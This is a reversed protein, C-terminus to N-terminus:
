ILDVNVNLPYFVCVHRWRYRHNRHISLCNAPMQKTCQTARPQRAFPQTTSPRSCSGWMPWDYLILTIKHLMLFYPLLPRFVFFIGKQLEIRRTRGWSELPKGRKYLQSGSLVLFNAHKGSAMKISGLYDMEYLMLVNYGSSACWVMCVRGVRCVRVRVRSTAPLACGIGLNSGGTTRSHVKTFVTAGGCPPPPPHSHEPRVDEPM